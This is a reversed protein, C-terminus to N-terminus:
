GQRRVNTLPLDLARWARVGGRLVRVWQYGEAALIPAALHSRKDTGDVLVVLHRKDKAVEGIRRRLMQAPINFSGRLHGVPGYYEEPPRLDVIAMPTNSMIQELEVPGLVERRRGRWWSALDPFKLCLLVLLLLLGFALPYQFEPRRSWDKLATPTPDLLLASMRELFLAQLFAM